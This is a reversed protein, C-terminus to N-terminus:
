AQKSSLALLFRWVIGVKQRGGSVSGAPTALWCEYMAWLRGFVNAHRDVGTLFLHHWVHPVM